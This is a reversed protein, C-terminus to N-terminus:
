PTSKHQTFRSVVVYAFVASCIGVAFGALTDSPFHIGATIRAVGILLAGVAFVWGWARSLFFFAGSLASFVVAHGSPFSDYAGHTFLLTVGDLAIFPRPAQFFAKLADSLSVAILMTLTVAVIDATRARGTRVWAVLLALAIVLYVIPLYEATMLIITDLLANQHVWGNMARFIIENM